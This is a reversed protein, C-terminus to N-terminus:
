EGERAQGSGALWVRVCAYVHGRGGRGGLGVAVLGGRALRRWRVLWVPVVALHHELLALHHVTRQKGEAERANSARM